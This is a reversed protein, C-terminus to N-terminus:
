TEVVAPEEYPREQIETVVPEEVEAVTEAETGVVLIEDSHGQVEEGNEDYIVEQAIERAEETEDQVGDAKDVGDVGREAVDGIEITAVDDSTSQLHFDEAFIRYIQDWDRVPFGPEPQAVCIPQDGNWEVANWGPGEVIVPEGNEDPTDLIYADIKGDLNIDLGIANHNEYITHEGYVTQGNLQTYFGFERDTPHHVPMGSEEHHGTHHIVQTEHYVQHVHTVQTPAQPQAAADTAVDVLDQVNEDLTNAATVHQAVFAGAAGLLAGAGVGGALYSLIKQKDDNKMPTFEQTSEFNAPNSGQVNTYATEDIYNTM